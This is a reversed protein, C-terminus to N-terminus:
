FPTGGLDELDIEKEERSVEPAEEMVNHIRYQNMLAQYEKQEEIPVETGREFNIVYYPKGDNRIKEVMSLMTTYSFLPERRVLFSSIYKKAPGMSTPTSVTMAFPVSQGPILLLFDYTGRCLEKRAEANEKMEERWQYRGCQECNGYSNGNIRDRSRCEVKNEEGWKQRGKQRTLLIVEIERSIAKNLLNEFMGSKCSAKFRPIVLDEPGADELGPISGKQVVLDDVM